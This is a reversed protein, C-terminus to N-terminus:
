WDVFGSEKRWRSAWDCLLSKIERGLRDRDESECDTVRGARLLTEVVAPEVEIRLVVVGRKVRARYRRQKETATVKASTSM